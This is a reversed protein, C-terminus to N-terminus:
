SFCKSNALLKLERLVSTNILLLQKQSINYGHWASKLCLLILYKRNLRNLKKMKLLQHSRECSKKLNCIEEDTFLQFAAQPTNVDGYLWESVDAEAVQYGLSELMITLDALEVTSTSDVSVEDHSADAPSEDSSPIIKRWSKNLTSADVENWAESIMDYVVKMGITKLFCLFFNTLIGVQYIPIIPNKLIGQTFQFDHILVGSYEVKHYSVYM